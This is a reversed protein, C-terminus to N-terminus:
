LKESSDCDCNPHLQYAKGRFCFMMELLSISNFLPFTEMESFTLINENMRM